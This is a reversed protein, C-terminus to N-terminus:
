PAAPVPSHTPGLGPVGRGKVRREKGLKPYIQAGPLILSDKGQVGMPYDWGPRGRLRGPATQLRGPVMRGWVDPDQTSLQLYGSDGPGM